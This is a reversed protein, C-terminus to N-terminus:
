VPKCNCCFTWFWVAMVLQQWVGRWALTFPATMGGIKSQVYELTSCFNNHGRLVL